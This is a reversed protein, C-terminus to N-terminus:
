YILGPHPEPPRLRSNASGGERGSKALHHPACLAQLNSPDHNGGRVIHDVHNALRMCRVGGVVWRCRHGDRRLIARRLKDWNPPLTYKRTSGVWNPM